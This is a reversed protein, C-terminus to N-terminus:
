KSSDTREMRHTGLILNLNDSKAAFVKVQQAMKINIRTLVKLFLFFLGSTM